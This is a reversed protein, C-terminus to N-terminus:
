KAGQAIYGKLVALNPLDTRFLKEIRDKYADLAFKKKNYTSLGNLFTDYQAKSYPTRFVYDLARLYPRFYYEDFNKYSKFMNYKQKYQQRVANFSENPGEKPKFGLEKYLNKLNPKQIFENPLLRFNHELDDQYASYGKMWLELVATEELLAEYTKVIKRALPKLDESLEELVDINKAAENLNKIATDVDAKSFKSEELASAVIKRLKQLNSEVQILIEEPQLKKDKKFFTFEAKTNFYSLIVIISMIKIYFNFNM